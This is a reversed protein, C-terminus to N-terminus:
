NFFEVLFNPQFDDLFLAYESCIWYGILRIGFIQPIYCVLNLIVVTVLFGFSFDISSWRVSPSLPPWELAHENSDSLVLSFCCGINHLEHGM